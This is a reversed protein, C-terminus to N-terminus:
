DKWSLADYRSLWANQVPSRAPLQHGSRILNFGLLLQSGDCFSMAVMTVAGLHAM